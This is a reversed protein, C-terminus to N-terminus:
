IPFNQCFMTWQLLSHGLIRARLVGHVTHPLFSLRQVSVFSGCSLVLDQTGWSNTLGLVALFYFYFVFVINGSGKQIFDWFFGILLIFLISLGLKKM